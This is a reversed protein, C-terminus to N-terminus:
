VAYSVRMMITGAAATAAGATVKLYFNFFGGPDQTYGLVDWIPLLMYASLYTGSFTVDQNKQAGSNAAIVVASGFMKNPSSYAARTTTTGNLTSTPITNANAFTTGDEIPASAAVGGVPADSFILNIDAAATATANSDVGKVFIEVKKIKANTPIRPGLTYTSSTDIATTTTIQDENVNPQYAAGEGMTPVLVPPSNLGILVTSELVEAM